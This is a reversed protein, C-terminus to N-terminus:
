LDPLRGMDTRIDKAGHAVGVGVGVGFAMAAGAGVVPLVAVVPAMALAAVAGAAVQAKRDQVTDVFRLRGRVFRRVKVYGGACAGAAAGVILLEIM